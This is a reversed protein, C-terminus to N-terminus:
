AEVMSDLLVGSAQSPTVLVYQNQVQRWWQAEAETSVLPKRPLPASPKASREGLAFALLAAKIYLGEAAAQPNPRQEEPLEEEVVAVFNEAADFLEPPAYHRLQEVADALAHVRIALRVDIPMSWDFLKRVGPLTALRSPGHLSREFAVDPFAATLDRHLPKLDKLLRSSAWRSAAANSTPISSGAAFTVFMVLQIGATIHGIALSYPRLAPFAVAGWMYLTRIVIYASGLVMATALAALGIRLPRSPALRAASGWQYGCVLCSSGLLIYFLTMYAAAGAQGVYEAVFDNTPQDRNVATFFVITLALCFVGAVTPIVRALRRTMVIPRTEPGGEPGYGAAVYIIIFAVAASGAYHELLVPLSTIPVHSLWDQVILTKPWLAAAYGAYCGCLARRERDGWRLAPARWLAIGSILLAAFYDFFGTPM